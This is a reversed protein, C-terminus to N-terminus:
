AHTGGLEHLADVAARDITGTELSQSVRLALAARLAATVRDALGRELRSIDTNTARGAELALRGQSWGLAHRARAITEGTL